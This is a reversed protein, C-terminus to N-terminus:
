PIYNAYCLDDMTTDEPITSLKRLLEEPLPSANNYVEYDMAEGRAVKMQWGPPLTGDRALKKALGPPLSKKRFKPVFM